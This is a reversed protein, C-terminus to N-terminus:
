RPALVIAFIAWTSPLVLSAAFYVASAAFRAVSYLVLYRCVSLAPLAQYALLVSADLATARSAPSTGAWYSCATTFLRTAATCAYPSRM